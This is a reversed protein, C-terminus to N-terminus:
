LGRAVLLVLRLRSADPKMDDAMIMIEICLCWHLVLFSRTSQGAAGLRWIPFRKGPKHM